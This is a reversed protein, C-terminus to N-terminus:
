CSYICITITSTSNRICHPAPAAPNRVNKQQRGLYEDYMTEFLNALDSERQQITSPTENPVLGLSIHGFTLPNLGPELSFQEFAIASIEDFKINMTEIVKWTRHNYVRYACSNSAYGIFIGIDGKAKLKWLDERDNLPYCIAGFAHLYFIYPKRNHILILDQPTRNHYTHILSRNEIM